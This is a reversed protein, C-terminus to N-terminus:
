GAPGFADAILLGDAFVTDTANNYIEVFQDSFYTGGSPTRSASYYVEKIVLDGLRSGSLRQTFATTPATVISRAPDLANLTLAARQGTLALARDPDLTLSSAIIYSGPLVRPFRAVGQADAIITDTVNRETSTLLVRAGAAASQAFTEPLTVQVDVVFTQVESAGDGCASLLGLVAAALAVRTRIRRQSM